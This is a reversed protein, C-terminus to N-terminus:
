LFGNWYRPITNVYITPYSYKSYHNLQVCENCNRIMWIDCTICPHTEKRAICQYIIAKNFSLAHSAILVMHYRLQIKNIYEHIRQWILRIYINNWGKILPCIWIIMKTNRIMFFRKLKCHNEYIFIFLWHNNCVSRLCYMPQLLTSM